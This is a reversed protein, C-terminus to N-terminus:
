EPRTESRQPRAIGVIGAIILGYAWWGVVLSFLLRDVTSIGPLSFAIALTAAIVVAGAALLVVSGARARKNGVVGGVIAAIGMLFGLAPILLPTEGAGFAVLLVVIVFTLISWLLGLVGLVIGSILIGKGM